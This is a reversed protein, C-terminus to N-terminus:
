GAVLPGPGKTRDAGQDAATTRLYILADPERSAGFLAPHTVSPTEQGEVEAQSLSDPTDSAVM